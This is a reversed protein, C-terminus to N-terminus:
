GTMENTWRMERRGEMRLNKENYWMMKKNSMNNYKIMEKKKVAYELKDGDSLQLLFFFCTKLLNDNIVVRM